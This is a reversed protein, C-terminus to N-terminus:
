DQHVPRTREYLWAAEDKNLRPAIEDYVQQHYANLWDIQDQHMLNLDLGRVDFPVLTLVDHRLFNGFETEFAPVVVIMNEHRIGYKGEVYLGPEDSTIMGPELVCSDKREPVVKWRFGNPGEHVNSLAGVGHGTGHNYDRGDQWLYQRCLIDLNMGRAGEMFVAKALDIHGQLVRTFAIREEETMEGTVFTRTIDTTGQLYQGGSDVLHMGKKEIRVPNARDPHYHPMSANAHYASITEFSDELFDPMQGRFEHLKEAASIETVENDAELQEDLWKWFRIVAVADRKHAERANEVEVANKCAKMLQIPNTMWIADKIARGIRSNVYDKEMMVPGELADIDDYIQNYPATKIGSEALLKASEEDLRNEDIYLVGDEENIIAYALAVPFNPIDNARLNFLWAIEDVKTTIHHKAGAEKMAERVRALKSAVSEGNYKEPYHFTRSAPLAPRDPWAEGALDLDTVITVNKDNLSDRYGEFAEMSVCRGDFALTAGDALNEQLYAEITPVGPQGMKMLDIGSGEIERGAQIFYRGDTWLGAKDKLVVLVGASGTFGSFHKRAGFYECVYETDHFDSTPLILADVNHAAMKERLTFLNDATTM